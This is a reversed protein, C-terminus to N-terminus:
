VKVKLAAYEHPCFAPEVAGTWAMCSIPVLTRMQSIGRWSQVRECAPIFGKIVKQM